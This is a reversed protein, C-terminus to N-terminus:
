SVPTSLAHKAQFRELHFEHKQDQALDAILEGLFPVFKFGHGSCPSALIVDSSGGPTLGAHTDILFDERPTNAYLCTKSHMMPGAAGPLHRKLWAELFELTRDSVEYGRSNAQVTEGSQHLGIKVGPLGFVPFGYAQARDWRSLSETEEPGTNEPGTNESGTNESGTDRSALNHSLFIPFREPLFDELKHPRFFVGSELTVTVPMALEPFLEPLWAGATIILKKAAFVGRDTEVRPGAGDNGLHIKSVATRELIKAGHARAMGAIVEVCHTPNLIGADASHLGVWDDPVRWQPFRRMLEAADLREFEAGTATMTQLTSQLSESGAPGLDLGGTLTLLSEGCDAELARWSRLSRMAMRAYDPLDYAFRFIRSHGQSSGRDHGIAFQELLTVSAGRKALAYATAVGAGGAGVILYETEIM